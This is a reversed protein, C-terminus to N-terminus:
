KAKGELRDCYIEIARQHFQALDPHIKAFNAAFRPDDLYMHGLGRLMEVSPEYFYRLHQHWRAVIQQVAPSGPDQDLVKLYDRYVAEGEEGIRLKDADSYSKWRRASEAYPDPWREAAEKEYEKQQDESFVEFLKKEAMSTKGELHLITQDVTNILRDLHAKRSHLAAKHQELARLLNFNPRQLIERIEELSFGMERYFLIQQLQYVATEGYRRYGNEQVVTPQLLGIEDYYHLTRVTVGALNSLQKVSYM